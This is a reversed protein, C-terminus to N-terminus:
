LQLLAIFLVLWVFIPTQMHLVSTYYIIYVTSITVNCQSQLLTVLIYLNCTKGKLEGGRLNEETVMMSLHSLVM